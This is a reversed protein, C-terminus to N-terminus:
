PNTVKEESNQYCEDKSASPSQNQLAPPDLSPFAPTERQGSNQRRHWGEFSGAKHLPGLSLAGSEPLPMNVGTEYSEEHKEGAM